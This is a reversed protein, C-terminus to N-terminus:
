SANGTLLLQALAQYRKPAERAGISNLLEARASVWNGRKIATIMDVFHLLGTLGDNFALDLMVSQRVPDMAAYWPYQLLSEQLEEVQAQLLAAAARQSIGSEVNFGYGITLHGTTDTYARARFGEETRL